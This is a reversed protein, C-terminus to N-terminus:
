DGSEGPVCRKQFDSRTKNSSDVLFGHGTSEITISTLAKMLTKEVVFQFGGTQFMEDNEGPEDLALM